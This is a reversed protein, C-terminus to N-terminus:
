YRSNCFMRRGTDEKKLQIGKWTKGGTHIYMAISPAETGEIVIFEDKNDKNIDAVILDSQITGKFPLELDGYETSLKTWRYKITTNQGQSITFVSLIIVTLIFIKRM